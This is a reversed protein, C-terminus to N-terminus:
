FLCRDRAYGYGQSLKVKIKEFPDINRRVDDFDRDYLNTDIRVDENYVFKLIDNKISASSIMPAHSYSKKKRVVAL